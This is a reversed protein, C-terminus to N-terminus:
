RHVMKAIFPHADPSEFCVASYPAEIEKVSRVGAFELAEDIASMFENLKIPKTLYRFFGAKLANAIDHPM